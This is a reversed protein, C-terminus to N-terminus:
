DLNGTHFHVANMVLQAVRTEDIIDDHYHIFQYHPSLRFLM